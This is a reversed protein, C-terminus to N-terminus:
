YRTVDSGDDKRLELSQAQKITGTPGQGTQSLRVAHEGHELADIALLLTAVRNASSTWDALRLYNDVLWNFAGQVATFAAAAQTLEGLSMTGALYKPVCLVLAVVPALLTNGHSILTMRMLQWCLDRWRALVVGLAKWLTQREETESGTVMGEGTERLLNAAARFEAEAQMQRQAVGVLPHGVIMMAATVLTSYAIAGAVLYGPIWVTLGFANFSINGGVNWLIDIFILATLVSSFLGLALDIPADTAVRADEAIRFEPNEHGDGDQNLHRFHNNALWYNILHTTLWERWKRQTTMRGWVSVIALTISIAVLPLFLLAEFKLAEADKQGIANFFDRNWYNLRYQVLLNHM